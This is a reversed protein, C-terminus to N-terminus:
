QLFLKQAKIKLSLKKVTNSPSPLTSIKKLNIILSNYLLSLTAKRLVEARILSVERVKKKYAFNNKPVPFEALLMKLPSTKLCGQCDRLSHIIKREQPLKDWSELSFADLLKKKIEPKKKGITRVYEVIKPFKNIFTKYEVLFHNKGDELQFVNTYRQYREQLIRAKYHKDGVNEKNSPTEKSTFIEYSAVKAFGCALPDVIPMKFSIEECM